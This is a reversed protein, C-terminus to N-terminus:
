DILVTATALLLPALKEPPYFPKGFAHLIGLAYNADTAKSIVVKSFYALVVLRVSEPEEEIQKLAAVADPFSVKKALARCFEIVTPSGEAIGAKILEQAETVPMGRVMSLFTLAQRPSGEARIAILKLLKSDIEISENKVVTTLLELLKSSEVSKIEYQHCRTKINKPIKTAETTCLIWHVGEPPEEMSKLLSTTAQKSLAHAEDVIIVRTRNKTLPSIQILDMIERMDDIGTKTAADIELINGPECGGTLAVIRALTTKGCGSPGSLLISVPLGTTVLNKLSKVTADQGVVDEFTSPRYKLTLDNKM